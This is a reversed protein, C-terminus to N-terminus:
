VPQDRILLRAGRPDRGLRDASSVYRSALGIGDLRAQSPGGRVYGGDPQCTDPFPGPRVDAFPGNQFLFPLRQRCFLMFRLGVLREKIINGGLAILLHSSIFTEIKILLFTAFQPINPIIFTNQVIKDFARLPFALLLVSLYPNVQVHLGVCIKRYGGRRLLPFKHLSLEAPTRRSFVKYPNPRGM